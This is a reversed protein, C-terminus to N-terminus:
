LINESSKKHKIKIFNAIEVFLKIM